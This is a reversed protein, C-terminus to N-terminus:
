DVMTAISDGLRHGQKPCSIEVVSLILLQSEGVVLMWSFRSGHIMTNPVWASAEEDERRLVIREELKLNCRTRVGSDGPDEDRLSPVPLARPSPCGSTHSTWCCCLPARPPIDWCRRPPLARPFCGTQPPAWYCRMPAYSYADPVWPGAEAASQAALSWSQDHQQLESRIRSRRVSPSCFRWHWLDLSQGSSTAISTRDSSVLLLCLLSPIIRVTGGLSIGHCWNFLAKHPPRFVTRKPCEARM